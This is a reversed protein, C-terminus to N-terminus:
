NIKLSTTDENLINAVEWIKKQVISCINDFSAEIESSLSLTFDFNKGEIGVIIGDVAKYFTELAKILSYEHESFLSQNINLRYIDKLTNVTVTGLEIGFFTADIIIIYDDEEVKILCYQFDTEGIIVEVGDKELSRGLREIVHIAIGDDGM